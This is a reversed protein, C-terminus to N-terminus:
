RSAKVTNQQESWVLLGGMVVLVVSVILFGLDWSGTHPEPKVPHLRLLYHNVLGEVFNFSAM